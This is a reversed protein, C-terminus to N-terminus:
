IHRLRKETQEGLLFLAFSLLNRTVGEGLTQIAREIRRKSKDGSLSLEILSIQFNLM